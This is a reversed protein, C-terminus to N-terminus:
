KGSAELDCSVLNRQRATGSADLCRAIEPFGDADDDLLWARAQGFPSFYTAVEFRGDLDEDRYEVTKHEGVFGLHVDFRGSRREDIMQWIRSGDVAFEAGPDTGRM